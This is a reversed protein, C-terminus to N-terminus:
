SSFQLIGDILLFPQAWWQDQNRDLFTHGDAKMQKHTENLYDPRYTASTACGSICFLALCSIAALGTNFKRKM